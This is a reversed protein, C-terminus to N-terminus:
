LDYLLMVVWCCCDCVLIESKRLLLLVNSNSIQEFSVIRRKCHKKYLRIYSYTNTHSMQSPISISTVSNHQQWLICLHSALCLVYIWSLSRKDSIQSFTWSQILLFTWHKSTIRLQALIHEGNRILKNLKHFGFQYRFVCIHLYNIYESHRSNTTVGPHNKETRSIFRLIYITWSIILYIYIDREELMLMCLYMSVCLCLM